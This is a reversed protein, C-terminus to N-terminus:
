SSPCLGALDRIAAQAIPAPCSWVLFFLAQRAWRQASETRLFGTGKRATLYAQTARVVLSNAQARIQSPQPADPEGRAQAMIQGWASRWGDCLAELPEALETRDPSLAILAELAARAQGLALASTELGGTGVAGPHGLVDASPGALLDPDTAEVGDLHIESTCSAQLAALPFPPRISVGPRDTPLAVLVQRGDDFAGGTVVLDARTAATVWPMTGDLRYRGPGIEEVRIARAGLRRSTTLHSIGVTAIARGRSVEGLWRDAAAGGPAVLLRRLAADHQSLIFVATLSGGALQAYRQVLVPRPCRTGGHDEPLTWRPAGIRELPEWLAAPWEERDAARGDEAALEAVASTLRPEDPDAETWALKGTLGDSIM